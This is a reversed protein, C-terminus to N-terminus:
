MYGQSSTVLVHTLLALAREGRSSSYVIHKGLGLQCEQPPLMQRLFSVVQVFESSCLVSM